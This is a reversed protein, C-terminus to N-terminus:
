PMSGYLGIGFLVMSTSRILDHKLKLSFSRAMCIGDSRHKVM